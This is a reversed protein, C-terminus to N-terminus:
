LLENNKMIALHKLVPHIIYYMESEKESNITTDPANNFDISEILDCITDSRIWPDYVFDFDINGPPKYEKTFLIEGSDLTNEM